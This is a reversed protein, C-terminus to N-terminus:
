TEPVVIRSEDYPLVEQELFKFLEKAKDEFEKGYSLNGLDESDVMCFNCLIRLTQIVNQFQERVGRNKYALRPLPFMGKPLSPKLDPNDFM